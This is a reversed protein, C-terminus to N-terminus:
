LAQPFSYKGPSPVYYMTIGQRGLQLMLDLCPRSEFVKVSLNSLRTHRYIRDDMRSILTQERTRREMTGTTHCHYSKVKGNDDLYHYEREQALFQAWYPHEASLISEVCHDFTGIYGAPMGLDFVKANLLTMRYWPSKEDWCNDSALHDQLLWEANKGIACASHEVNISRMVGPTCRFREALYGAITPTHAVDFVFSPDFRQKYSPLAPMILTGEPGLFDILASILEDATGQYNYFEKMSAHICITDGRQMGLSQMVAILEATGYKQHYICQGFRKKLNKRVLSLDEIGTFRKVWVGLQTLISAM